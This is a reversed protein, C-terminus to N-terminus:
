HTLMRLNTGDYNINALDHEKVMIEQWGDSGFLLVELVNAVLYKMIIGRMLLCLEQPDFFLGDWQGTAPDPSAVAEIYNRLPAEFQLINELPFLERDQFPRGYMLVDCFEFVDTFLQVFTTEYWNADFDGKSEEPREWAKRETAAPQFSKVHESNIPKYLGTHLPKWPTHPAQDQSEYSYSRSHSSYGPNVSADSSFSARSNTAIM